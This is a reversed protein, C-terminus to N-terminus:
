KEDRNRLGFYTALSGLGVVSLLVVIATNRHKAQESTKPLEKPTEKKEVPKYYDVVM